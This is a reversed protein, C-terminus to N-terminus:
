PQGALAEEWNMCAELESGKGLSCLVNGEFCVMVPLNFISYICRALFRLNENVSM